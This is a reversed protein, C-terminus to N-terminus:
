SLSVTVMLLERGVKDRHAAVGEPREPCKHPFDSRKGVYVYETSIYTFM